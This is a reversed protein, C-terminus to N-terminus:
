SSFLMSISARFSIMGRRFHAYPKASCRMMSLVVDVEKLDVLGEGCGADGHGSFQSEISFLEIDVSSGDREAM